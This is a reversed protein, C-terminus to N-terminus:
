ETKITGRINESGLGTLERVSGVLSDGKFSVTMKFYNINGIEDIEFDFVNHSAWEGRGAVPIDYRGPAFHFKGDLGLPYALTIIDKHSFDNGVQFWAKQESEFQFACCYLGFKNPELLYLNGSIQEAVPPLPEIIKLRPTKPQACEMLTSQLLEFSASDPPLAQDSQLAEIFFAKLSSLGESFGGGTIVVITNLDPRLYLYQGGRGSAHCDGNVWWLYGYGQDDMFEVQRSTAAAVWEPSLIQDNEWRGNQLYLYGIKALDCPLMLIEGWGHKDEGRADYPWILDDIELALFLNDRAYEPASKGSAQRIVESLLHATGSNYNFNEGPKSEMKLDLMYQIRDPSQIIEMQTLEDPNETCKLGSRMTLIDELTIAKKLSDLNAIERDPFYDVLRDEVGGILGDQIAAGVLTSLVSETVSALNHKVGKEYPYFYVDLISYGNRIILLSHINLNYDTLFRLAETLVASSIGQEEPTSTRWEDGPWYDVAVALSIACIMLVFSAVFTAKKIIPSINMKDEKQFQYD